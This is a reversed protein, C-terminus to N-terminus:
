LFRDELPGLVRMAIRHGQAGTGISFIDPCRYKAGTGIALSMTPRVHLAMHGGHRVDLIAIPTSGRPFGSCRFHERTETQIVLWPLGVRRRCGRSITVARLRPRRGIRVLDPHQQAEGGDRCRQDGRRDQDHPGAVSRGPCPTAGPPHPPGSRPHGRSM